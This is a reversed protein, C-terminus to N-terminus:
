SAVMEGLVANSLSLWGRLLSPDVSGCNGRVGHSRCRVARFLAECGGHARPGWRLQRRRKDVRLRGLCTTFAILNAVLLYQVAHDKRALYLAQPSRLTSGGVRVYRRDSDLIRWGRELALRHM